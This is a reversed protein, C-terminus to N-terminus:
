KMKLNKGQLLVKDSVKFPLLELRMQDYYKFMAEQTEKLQELVWAHVEKLWHVYLTAAPNKAETQKLWAMQLNFRYNAYFPSVEMALTVSNNYAYEAM